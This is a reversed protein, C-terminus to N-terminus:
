GVILHIGLWVLMVIGWLGFTFVIWAAFYSANNLVHGKEAMSKKVEGRLGICIIGMLVICLVFVGVARGISM